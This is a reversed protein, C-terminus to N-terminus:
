AGSLQIAAYNGAADDIDMEVLQINHFIDAWSDVQERSLFGRRCVAADITIGNSWHDALAEILEEESLLGNDRLFEGFGTLKIADARTNKM